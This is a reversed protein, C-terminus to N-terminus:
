TYTWHHWSMDYCTWTDLAHIDAYFYYIDHLQTGDLYIHMVIAKGPHDLIGGERGGCM